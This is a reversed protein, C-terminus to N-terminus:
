LTYTRYESCTKHESLEMPSRGFVIGDARSECRAICNLNSYLLKFNAVFTRKWIDGLTVTRSDTLSM